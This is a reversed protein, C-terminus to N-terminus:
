VDKEESEEKLLGSVVYWLVATRKNEPVFFWIEKGEYIEFDVGAGFLIRYITALPFHKEVEEGDRTGRYTLGTRDLTCVGEGAHRTMEKGDKSSHRLEVKSTISFEPDAALQEATKAMQYDYWEAFNEFPKSDVFAYRDDISAEMGCAECRLDHGKATMTGIKQCKPCLYLINELGEALTKRRYSIEPHEALWAFEDYALM